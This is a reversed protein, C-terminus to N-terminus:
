FVNLKTKKNLIYDGIEIAIKKNAEVTFHCYDLFVWNKWFHVSKMPYAIESNEFYAYAERLFYNQDPNSKEISFYNYLAKEQFNLISTDRFALYPQILLLHDQKNKNLDNKFSKTEKFYKDLARLVNLSDQTDYVIPLSKMSFWKKKVQSAKSLRNNQERYDKYHYVLKALCWYIALKSSREFTTTLPENNVPHNLWEKLFWEEYKENQNLKKPENVGDMSVIFDPNYKKILTNYKRRSHFVSGGSVAFNFIKVNKNKMNESLHSHLFGSISSDVEHDNVGTIDFWEGGVRNSGMGAIASGGFLFVWYDKSTKSLPMLVDKPKMKAGVENVQYDKNLELYYPRNSYITISDSIFSSYSQNEHSTSYPSFYLFLLLRLLIELIFFCILTTVLFYIIYIKRFQVKKKENDKDKISKIM